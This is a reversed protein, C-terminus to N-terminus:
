GLTNLKVELDYKKAQLLKQAYSIDQLFISQYGSDDSYKKKWCKLCMKAKYEPDNDYNEKAKRRAYDTPSENPLRLRKTM